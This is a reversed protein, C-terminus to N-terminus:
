YWGISYMCCLLVTMNEEKERENWEIRRRKVARYIEDSTKPPPRARCAKVSFKDMTTGENAGSCVSSQADFRQLCDQARSTGANGDLRKGSSPYCRISASQNAIKRSLHLCVDSSTGPCAQPIDRYDIQSDSDPWPLQYRLVPAFFVATAM